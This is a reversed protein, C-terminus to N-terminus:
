LATLDLEPPVLSMLGIRGTDSLAIAADHLCARTKTHVRVHDSKHHIADTSYPSPTIEPGMQIPDSRIM